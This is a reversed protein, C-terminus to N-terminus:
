ANWDNASEFHGSTFFYTGTLRGAQVTAPNGAPSRM